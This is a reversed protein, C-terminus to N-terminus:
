VLSAMFPPLFLITPWNLPAVPAPLQRTQNGEADANPAM